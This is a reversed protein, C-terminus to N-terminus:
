VSEGKGTGVRKGNKFLKFNNSEANATVVVHTWSSNDFQSWRINAWQIGNSDEVNRLSIKDGNYFWGIDFINGLGSFKEFKTMVEISFTGGWVWSPSVKAYDGCGNFVLGQATCRAGFANVRFQSSINDKISHGDECNRFDWVHTDNICFTRSSPSSFQAQSSRLPDCLLQM